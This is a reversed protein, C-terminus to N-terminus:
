EYKLSSVPDAQAAQLAKYLLTVVAVALSLMFAILFTWINISIRFAFNQLWKVMALYSIPWAIANALAVLLIFEKSMRGVISQISAGLVKRIAIEKARRETSYSVLGFIGMCAIFLALGSTYGFTAGFRRDSNYKENFYDDQFYYEFAFHPSYKKVNDRLFQLTDPINDPLIRVSLFSYAEPRLYFVMPKIKEHLSAHHYDKVIGIIRQGRKNIAKGIPQELGLARVAAQNVLVAQDEDTKFEESFNRGAYIQVQFVDFFDYGIECTFAEISTKEGAANICAINAINNQELPIYESGSAALIQDNRLLEESLVKGNNRAMDDRLPLVVVHERDYGIDKNRVFHLQQRVVLTGIILCISVAFQFVVLINRLGTSQKKAEVKGKLITVTKLSSLMLSPYSGSFLGAFLVMGFVTIPMWPNSLWNIELKREVLHSFAPLALFVLLIAFLSAILSFCVSEGMFQHILQSKQAGVVKRLGIEKARQSFRATSLNMYNICALILIFFATTSFLYISKKDNTVSGPLNFSLPSWHLDKLPQLIYKAIDRGRFRPTYEALRSHLSEHRVGPLLEVYSYYQSRGWNQLIERNGPTSSITTFSILYDFQMHSNAPVDSMVGTITVDYNENQSGSKQVNMQKSFNVIKGIPNESGFYKRALKETVVMSFPQSLCAEEDGRILYFSFLKFFHADAFLGDESFTNEQFKMTGTVDAICTGRVVEPFEAVMTPALPAPTVPLYRFPLNQDDPYIRIVRYLNDYKKHFRDYSIEHLVYLMMLIFCAMGVALGAINIFSFGKHKQFSRFAAKLYSIFMIFRGYFLDKFFSPLSKLLHFWYWFWAHLYGKSSAIHEFEEDFDGRLYNNDEERTMFKLILDGLKPPKLKLNKM